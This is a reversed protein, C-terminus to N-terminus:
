TLEFYTPVFRMCVQGYFEDQSVHCKIFYDTGWKVSDLLYSMQGAKTYGEPYAIGGWALVTVASAMPFGFKVFDGALSFLPLAINDFETLITIGM